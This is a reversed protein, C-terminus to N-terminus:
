FVFKLVAEGGKGADEISTKTAKYSDKGVVNASRSLIHVAGFSPAAVYLVFAILSISKKM